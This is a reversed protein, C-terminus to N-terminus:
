LEGRFARHQLSAFLADLQALSARQVKTLGEVGAVRREFTEQLELPPLAIPIKRVDGLNIGRVAVGKTHRHMWRQSGPSRLCERVFTASAGVIALRATDQTINAGELEHPVIATRGVHGRISLLLDGARLLSRRYSRSIEHTTRRVASADIGGDRMDVVRVYPVGGPQDPGPMLIGYTTPRERDVLEVLPRTVFGRSDAAANGFMDVFIAQTLSNLQVLAARRKSRLTEAQHLVEAIRLQEHLPPAPVQLSRIDDFNLGAKVGTRNKAVIQRQGNPSALFASLFYPHMGRLRLVALHQNVYAPGLGSPVVGTRGLDATITLLVDGPEVKTRAAEASAPPDVYTLEDLLLANRGVNQIRLFPSGSDSYYRAWGRSGSTLFALFEGLPRIPWDGVKRAQAWTM